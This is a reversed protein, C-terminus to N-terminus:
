FPCSEGLTPDPLRPSRSDDEISVTVCSYSGSLHGTASDWVISGPDLIVCDEVVKSRVYCINDSLIYETATGRMNVPVADVVLWNVNPCIGYETNLLQIVGSGDVSIEVYAKGNKTVDGANVITFGSMEGTFDTVNVGPSMYVNAGPNGCVALWETLGSANPLSLVSIDVMTPTKDVNGVQYLTADATVSGVSWLLCSGNAARYRCYLAASAVPATALSLMAAGCLCTIVRKWM